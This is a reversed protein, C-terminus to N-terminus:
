RGNAALATTPGYRASLVPANIQAVARQMVTRYCDSGRAMQVDISNSLIRGGCVKIAASDLRQLLRAAGKATNVNLDGYSVKVQIVGGGDDSAAFSTAPAALALALAFIPLGQM